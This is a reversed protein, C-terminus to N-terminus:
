YFGLLLLHEVDWMKELCSLVSDVPSPFATGHTLNKTKFWALIWLWCFPQNKTEQNKFSSGRLRLPTLVMNGSAKTLHSGM